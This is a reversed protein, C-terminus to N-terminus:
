HNLACVTGASSRHDTGLMQELSSVVGQFELNDLGKRLVGCAGTGVRVCGCLSVFMIITVTFITSITKLQINCVSIFHMAVVDHLDETPFKM